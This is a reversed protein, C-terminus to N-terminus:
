ILFSKMANDLANVILFTPFVFRIHFFDLFVDLYLPTHLSQEKVTYEKRKSEHSPFM